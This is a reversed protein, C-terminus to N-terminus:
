PEIVTDSSTLVVGDSYIPSALYKKLAFRILVGLIAAVPVALLLGTFGFLAGGALLAFIVWVPHLNVRGGVLKPTVFNGELFQGVLFVGAVVGVHLWDGFQFFAVTLGIVLGFLVGVYPIFSLIGTGLGIFLGFNLGALSLGIAYFVGLILCVNTQGRIYGSLTRDIERCQERVVPAYLPPIFGNIKAVIADWDRLVYFTVIPTVFLLSLVNVIALGSSLINKVLTTAFEIISGSTNSIAEKAKDVSDPSIRSIYRSVSPLIDNQLARTYNPIEHILAMSQQYLVPALLLGVIVLLLFFSVVISLTAMTRSLGWHEIKDALPDLFYATIIAVVFPLLVTSILSMFIGLLIFGGVFFLLREKWKM